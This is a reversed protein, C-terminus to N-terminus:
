GRVGVLGAPLASCAVATGATQLDMSIEAFRLSVFRKSRQPKRGSGPADMTPLPVASPLDAAGRPRSRRVTLSSRLHSPTAPCHPAPQECVRGVGARGILCADATYHNIFCPILNNGAGPESPMAAMEAEGVHVWESPARSRGEITASQGM